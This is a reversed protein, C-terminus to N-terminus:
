IECKGDSMPYQVNSMECEVNSTPCPMVMKVNSMKCKVDVHMREISILLSLLDTVACFDVNFDFNGDFYVHFDFDIM